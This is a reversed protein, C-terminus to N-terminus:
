VCYNLTFCLTQKRSAMQLYSERLEEAITKWSLYGDSTYDKAIEKRYDALQEEDSLLSCIGQYVADTDKEKVLMGYKGNGLMEPLGGVRTAIVPTGFTFSSMIVGSQTADTYPCVMFQTKNMLAVLEEDPIFRNRIDVYPLAAYESIDFHYKGGGAVVLKIDPFTDHVKKMAELLYEVGKYKSIKGAFLIYKQEPVTTMDQEVMNLYTYCSLRSDIVASSPLHYFSLFKERQAKNLIIFHPVCRFAVKRRLRVIRTDLGTHPFPDHVTLIIKRKLMYIIFEYVNAPWTLHIVDFKNKILFLLLLFNTWFAKLQWFKGCTNVVYFKDVDIIRSYKEFEPYAETAKFVGSHPYIKGINYAPGKMFRPTVEMIYTIDSLKQASNLYSLDADSLQIKGIYAIKM